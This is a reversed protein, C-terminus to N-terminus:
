TKWCRCCIPKTQSARVQLYNKEVAAPDIDWAVTPINRESAIRSFLGTNAGLDWSWLPRPTIADLMEGVLARKGDMASDSYNTQSYYDGWTTGAPKWELHKVTNELSDILGLLATRSLRGPGTSSSVPQEAYRKQAAGHLHIHTLLGPQLRTVSPLLRSALDLPIGDINTRLLQGLRIHGRPEDACPPGSFAPLVAPVRGM